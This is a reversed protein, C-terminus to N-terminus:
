EQIWSSTGDSYVEKKFVPPRSKYAEIAKVMAPFVNKRSKASLAVLVLFDGPSFKGEAHLIQVDQLDYEKRIEESIKKLEEGAMERYTEIELEVVKKGIQSDERVVGVFFLIAGSRGGSNRRIFDMIESSVDFNKDDIIRSVSM